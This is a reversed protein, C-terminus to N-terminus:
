RDRVEFNVIREQLPGSIRNKNPERAIESWKNIENLKAATVANHYIEVWKGISKINSLYSVYKLKTNNSIELKGGIRTIKDFGKLSVLGTDPGVNDKITLDRGVSELSVLFGGDEEGQRRNRLRPNNSIIFTGEVIKLSSLDVIHALRSNAAIAINSVILPVECWIPITECKVVDKERETAGGVKVLSKIGELTLLGTETIVIQEKIENLRKFNINRLNPEKNIILGRMVTVKPFSIGKGGQSSMQNDSVDLYGLDVILPAYISNLSRNGTFQLDYATTLVPFTVDVLLPSNILSFRNLNELKSLSVTTLGENVFLSFEKTFVLKPFNVTQLASNRAIRISTATQLKGLNIAKLKANNEIWLYQGVNDINNLGSISTLSANREIQIYNISTVTSLGDLNVLDTGIIKLKAQVSSCRKQVVEQYTIEGMANGACINAFIRSEFAAIFTIVMLLKFMPDGNNTERPPQSSILNEM